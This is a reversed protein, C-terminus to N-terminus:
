FLYTVDEDFRFCLVCCSSTQANLIGRQQLLLRTPLRDILIRWGHILFKSPAATKWLLKVSDEEQLVSSNSDRILKHYATKVTYGHTESLTWIWRDPTSDQPSIQLITNQLLEAAETAEASLAAAWGIRWNWRLVM